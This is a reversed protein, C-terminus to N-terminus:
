GLQNLLDDFVEPLPEAVIEAFALRLRDGLFRTRNEDLSIPDLQWDDETVPKTV